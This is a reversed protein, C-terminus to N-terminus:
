FALVGPNVSAAVTLVFIQLWAILPFPVADADPLPVALPVPVAEDVDDPAAVFDVALAALQNDAL